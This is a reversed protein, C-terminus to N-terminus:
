EYSVKKGEKNQRIYYDQKEKTYSNFKDVKEQKEEESFSDWMKKYDENLFSVIEERTYHRGKNKEKEIRKVKKEEETEAKSYIWEIKEKKNGKQFQDCDEKVMEFLEPFTTNEVDAGGLYVFNYKQSFIDKLSVNYFMIEYNDRDKWKNVYAYKPNTLDFYNCKVTEYIEYKQPFKIVGKKIALEEPVKGFSYHRIFVFIILLIIIISVIIKIIKKM